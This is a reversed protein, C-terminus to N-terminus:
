LFRLIIIILERSINPYIDSLKKILIENSIENIDQFSNLICQLKLYLTALVKLYNNRLNVIDENTLSLNVDVKKSNSNEDM